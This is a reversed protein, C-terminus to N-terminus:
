LPLSRMLICMGSMAGNHNAAPVFLMMDIWLLKTRSGYYILFNFLLTADSISATSRLLLKDSITSM